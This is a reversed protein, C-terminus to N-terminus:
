EAPMRSLVRPSPRYHRRYTQTEAVTPLHFLDAPDAAFKALELSVAQTCTANPDFRLDAHAEGFSDTPCYRNWCLLMTFAAATSAGCAVHSSKIRVREVQEIKGSGFSPLDVQM